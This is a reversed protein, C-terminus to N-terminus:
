ASPPVARMVGSNIRSARSAASGVLAANVPWLSRSAVSPMSELAATLGRTWGLSRVGTTMRLLLEVARVAVAVVLEDLVVVVAGRGASTGGAPVVVVDDGVVVVDDLEVVLVVAGGGAGVVVEELEVVLVVSGSGDGVVVGWGDGGGAGVM